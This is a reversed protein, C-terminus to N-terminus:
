VNVVTAPRATVGTAGIGDAFVRAEIAGQCQCDIGSAVHEDGVRAVM